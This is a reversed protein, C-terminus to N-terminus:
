LDEELQIQSVPCGLIQGLDDLVTDILPTTKRTLTIGFRAFLPSEGFNVSSLIVDKGCCDMTLEIEDPPQVSLMENLQFVQTQDLQLERNCSPCTLEQKEPNFLGIVQIYDHTWQLCREGEALAGGLKALVTAIADDPPIYNPDRPVIALGTLGTASDNV